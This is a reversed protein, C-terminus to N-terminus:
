ANPFLIYMSAGTTDALPTVKVDFYAPKDKEINLSAYMDVNPLYIAAGRDESVLLLGGHSINVEDPNYGNGKFTVGAVTSTMTVDEGKKAMLLNNVEGAVSPVQFSIDSDGSSAIPTWIRGTTLKIKTVSPESTKFTVGDETVPIEMDAATINAVGLNKTKFYYVEKLSNFIVSLDDLTKTITM